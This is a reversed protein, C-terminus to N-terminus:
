WPRTSSLSCGACFGLTGLSGSRDTLAQSQPAALHENTGGPRDRRRASCCAIEPRPDTCCFAAVAPHGGRDRRVVRREEVPSLRSGLRRDIGRGIRRSRCSGSSDISCVLREGHEVDDLPFPLAHMPLLDTIRGHLESYETTSSKQEATKSSGRVVSPVSPCPDSPTHPTHRNYRPRPRGRSAALSAM